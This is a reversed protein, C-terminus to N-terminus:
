FYFTLFIIFIYPLCYLFFDLALELGSTITFPLATTVQPEFMAVLEFHLEEATQESALFALEIAIPVPELIFSAETDIVELTLIAVVVVALIAVEFAAIIAESAATVIAASAVISIATSAATVIAASAATVVAASTAIATSAVVWYPHKALDAVITLGASATAHLLNAEM